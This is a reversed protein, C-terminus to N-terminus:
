RITPSAASIPLTARILSKTPGHRTRDKRLRAADAARRGAIMSTSPKARIAAYQAPMCPAPWMVAWRPRPRHLNAKLTLTTTAEVTGNVSGLNIVDLSSRNAPMTGDPNLTWGELYFGASNKLLGNADATFAGARTYVANAPNAPNDTVVFFGNGNVALDTSSSTSTLLGQQSLRQPSKVQV